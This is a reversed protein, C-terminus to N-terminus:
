PTPECPCMMNAKPPESTVTGTDPATPDTTTTADATTTPADATMPRLPEASPAGAAAMLREEPFRDRVMTLGRRAEASMHKEIERALAEDAIYLRGEGDFYANGLKGLEGIPAREEEPM